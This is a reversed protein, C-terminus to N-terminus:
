FQPQNERGMHLSPHLSKKSLNQMKVNNLLADLKNKVQLYAAQSESQKQILKMEM